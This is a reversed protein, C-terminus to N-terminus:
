PVDVDQSHHHFKIDLLESIISHLCQAKENLDEDVQLVNKNVGKAKNTKLIMCGHLVSPVWCYSCHYCGWVSITGTHM